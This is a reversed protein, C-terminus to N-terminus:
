LNNIIVKKITDKLREIEELAVLHSDALEKVNTKIKVIGTFRASYTKIYAEIMNCSDKVEQKTLM